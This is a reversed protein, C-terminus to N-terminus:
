RYPDRYGLAQLLESERAEMRRAEVARLHDWGQAHLSGHVLLHAYHAEVTKRQARAERAVVPACLVLDALVLPARQYDFTLVNTAHDQARYDRNLARAEAEDVIRVTIEAPADLAARIWRAVKHRALVRRHRGDAQQLSLRLEPAM